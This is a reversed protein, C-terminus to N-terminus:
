RWAMALATGRPAVHARSHLPSKEPRPKAASRYTDTKEMLRGALLPSTERQMNSYLTKDGALIVERCDVGESPRCCPPEDRKELKLM